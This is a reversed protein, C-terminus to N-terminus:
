WYLDELPFMWFYFRRLLASSSAALFIRSIYLFAFSFTNSLFDATPRLHTLHYTIKTKM